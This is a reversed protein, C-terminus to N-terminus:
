LCPAGGETRTPVLMEGALLGEPLAGKLLRPIGCTMRVVVEARAALECGLRGAAERLCRERADVPVVGCGQEVWTVVPWAALRGALESVDEPSFHWGPGSADGSRLLGAALAHANLLLMGPEHAFVSTPLGGDKGAAAENEADIESRTDIGTEIAVGNEADVEIGGPPVACDTAAGREAFLVRDIVADSALLRRAFRRKGSGVGGVVLIM